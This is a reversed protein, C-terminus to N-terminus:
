KSTAQWFGPWDELPNQLYERCRKAYFFSPRDRESLTEFLPLAETFKGLYFLEVAQDFQEILSKRELFEKEQLPEYVVVPEKKGVVAVKALKRGYFTGFGGARDLTAQTCMIYTGFQKNLGELRAALNVSDGLMTYDFRNQSGMNGVVADGTNMGMRTFLSSGFKEEFYVQREALKEQCELAAKLARAAHDPQDAPANWFAIIADGEYKDITGGSRLIIDSLFSLYENLLETLKEPDLRESISTFGQVDSFFITIERREGGLKLREPHAILQEIVIPSLYQKFASKLYRKQKGGTVYQFLFTCWFAGGIGLLFIVMPVWWGIAYAIFCGVIIGLCLLLFGTISFVLRNVFLVLFSTLFIFLLLFIFTLALPLTRIFNKQLINDMMTIHLCVGPYVSSIPTSCVDFLGPAYLGFFVHKNQFVDPEYLPEEGRRFSEASQIVEAARYPHYRNPDGLFRLFTQGKKSFPIEYEGLYVSQKKEDYIMTQGGGSALLAAVSLTPIAKGDFWHFLSMERFIGDSQFEGTVNGLCGASKALGPLPFLARLAEKKERGRLGNSSFASNFNEMKLLPEPLDKPWVAQNGSTSSFFVSHVSRGFEECARIFEADDKEGYVSPESFIVDFTCSAAESLNLYDVMQAYAARPWPWSWGKEKQAWDLSDQDLAIFIIEDSPQYVEAMLRVRADYTRNELLDFIGVHYFVVSVAFVAGTIFCCARMKGQSETRKKM